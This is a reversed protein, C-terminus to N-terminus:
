LKKNRFYEELYDDVMSRTLESITLGQEQVATDLGQRQYASIKVSLSDRYRVRDSKIAINLRVTTVPQPNPMSSM